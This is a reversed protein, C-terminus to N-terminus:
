QRTTSTATSWRKCWDAASETSYADHWGALEDIVYLGLTDCAELFSLDPPYHSMRVANMNMSKILEADRFDLDRNLTRGSPPWFAHRNVGKLRVRRDNIFIGERRVEVTRFGFRESHRHLCQGDRELEVVVQYLHPHEASWLRPRDIRSSLRASGSVDAATVLQAGVTEGELTEIRARIRAPATLGRPEVDLVVSGEHRANIVVRGISEAPRAELYVPRYIGGFVWYDADREARNVSADSSQKSVTVELVNEAVQLLLDTVDYRFRYFSGRHVPGASQGNLRVEADTMVGEFVLDVVRESWGEPRRFRTRYQGQERSKEDDHGYNYAGFGYQEWHSPVPITTWAGSRRGGTVLFEWDVTDRYGTGSLM